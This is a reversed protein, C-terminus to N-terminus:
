SAKDKAAEMAEYIEIVGLGPGLRQLLAAWKMRNVVAWGAAIMAPTPGDPM